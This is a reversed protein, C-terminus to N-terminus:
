EWAGALVLSFPISKQHKGIVAKLNEAVYDVEEMSMDPYIPLSIAEEFLQGACPFDEPSYGFQERYYRHMHLPLYHVSTTIGAERLEQMVGDRDISLMSTQLRVVYLQWSHIRDPHVKPLILEEVGSLVSDYQDAVQTRLMQLEDVHRLQELGVAAAADTMDHMGRMKGAYDERNTCVMGGDWDGTTIPTNGSFSFCCIDAGTGVTEWRQQGEERYFAPCCHTADEIIKLGYKEALKRVGTVDGIQGAFHFPM